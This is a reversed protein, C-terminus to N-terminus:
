DPVSYPIKIRFRCGSKYDKDIDITGGHSEAISKAIALGLGSGAKKINRLGECRYFREFVRKRESEPIGCGHDSVSIEFFMGNRSLEAEITKGEGSYKIANDLLIILLQVIRDEDAYAESDATSSNFTITIGNAEAKPRAVNCAKIILEELNTESCKMQIQRSEIMSIDLLFNILRELRESEEHIINLFKERLQPNEMAGDMLSETYGKICTLPTRLEHSVNSILEATVKDKESLLHAQSYATKLLTKPDIDQYDKIIIWGSSVLVSNNGTENLYKRAKLIARDSVLKLGNDTFTDKHGPPSFLVLIIRNEDENDQSLIDEERFLRGTSERMYEALGKIVSPNITGDSHMDFYIYGIDKGSKTAAIIKDMYSDTM